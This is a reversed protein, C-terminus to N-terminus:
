DKLLIIDWPFYERYLDIIIDDNFILKYQQIKLDQEMEHELILRNAWDSDPLVITCNEFPTIFLENTKIRWEREWTFDIPPIIIPNYTVHRWRYHEPLENYEDLTQYIVPRGGLKFLWKKQIMIGFPSYKSYYNPNLLGYPIINIPVESFCVCKDGGKILNSSGYIVGSSIISLLNNFAEEFDAGKTFHILCSSIDVRITM